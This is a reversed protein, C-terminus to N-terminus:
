WTPGDGVDMLPLSLPDQNKVDGRAFLCMLSGVPCISEIVFMM